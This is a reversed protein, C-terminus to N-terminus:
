VSFSFAHLAAEQLGPWLVPELHHQIFSLLRGATASGSGEICSDLAYGWALYRPPRSESMREGICSDCSHKFVPAVDIIPM